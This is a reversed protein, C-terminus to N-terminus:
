VQFKLFLCSLYRGGWFCGLDNTVLCLLNFFAGTNKKIEDLFDKNGCLFLIELNKKNKLKKLFM